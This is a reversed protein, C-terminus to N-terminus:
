LVPIGSFVEAAPDADLLPIEEHILEWIHFDSNTGYSLARGKESHPPLDLVGRTIRRRM